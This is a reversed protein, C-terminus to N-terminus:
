WGWLPMDCNLTLAIASQCLGKWSLTFQLEFGLYFSSRLNCCDLCHIFILWSEWDCKKMALAVDTRAIRSEARLPSARPFLANALVFLSWPEGPSGYAANSLFHLFVRSFKYTHIFHTFAWQGPYTNVFTCFACRVRTHTYLTCFAPQNWTRTETTQQIRSLRLGCLTGCMSSLSQSSCQHKWLLEGCM